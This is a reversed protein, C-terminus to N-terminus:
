GFLPASVDPADPHPPMCRVAELSGVLRCDGTAFPILVTNGRGIDMSGASGFELHGRGLTIVVISFGAPLSAANRPRIREARFFADAESPFLIDVGPRADHGGGRPTRMRDLREM